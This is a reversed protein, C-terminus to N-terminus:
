PRCGFGGNPTGSVGTRARCFRRKYAEGFLASVPGVIPPCLNWLPLQVLPMARKTDGSCIPCPYTLFGITGKIIGVVDNSEQVTFDDGTVRLLAGVKRAAVLLSEPPDHQGIVAPRQNRFIGAKEVAIKEVTDGLYDCHDLGVGSVVSVAPPFVNVADLRGGMGVELLAFDCNQAAIIEAAALTTFEFYTLSM